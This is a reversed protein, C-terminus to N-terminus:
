EQGADEGDDDKGRRRIMEMVRAHEDDSLMPEPPAGLPLPQQRPGAPADGGKPAYCGQWGQAISYEINRIAADHGEAARANVFAQLGIPKYAQGKERRYEQWRGLAARFAPTDLAPPIVPPKPEAKKGGTPKADGTGGKPPQPTNSKEERRKETTVRSTVTVDGTVDSTVARKARYKAQREAGKSRTRTDRPANDVFFNPLVVRTGGGPMDEERAWGVSAMADGFSPVGAMMDLASLSAHHMVLDDGRSKGRDRSVGWTVILSGAVFKVLFGPTVHEYASHRCSARVPDTLHRMFARDSALYDAMAIAKPDRELLVRMKVWESEAM